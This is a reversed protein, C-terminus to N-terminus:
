AFESPQIDWAISPLLYTPAPRHAFLKEVGRLRMM